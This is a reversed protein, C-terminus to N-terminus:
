DERKGSERFTYENIKISEDVQEDSNRYEDEAQLEKYYWDALARLNDRVITEDAEKVDRGDSREVEISMTGSHTYNGSQTIRATLQYFNRRQVEALADAIAHLKEDQPAHERIKKRSGKAVSYWGEFSAGDGQSYSLSWWICPKPRTGGGYLKVDRTKLTVGLIECITEFDETEFDDAEMSSRFWQRAREKADDSLEDFHYLKITKEIPM